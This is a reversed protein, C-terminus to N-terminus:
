CRLSTEQLVLGYSVLAVSARSYKVGRFDLSLPKFAISRVLETVQATKAEPIEGLFKLTIHINEQEVCKVDAGTMEIASQTRLLATKVSADDIDVAVFCRDIM